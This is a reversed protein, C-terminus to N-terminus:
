MAAHAWALVKATSRLCNGPGMWSNQCVKKPLQMPGCLIRLLMASKPCSCPGMCRGVCDGQCYQEPLERPGVLLAPLINQAAAHAWVIDEAASRLYSGPSMWSHQFYRKLLHTPGYRFRLLVRWAARQAWWPTSAAIKLCIHPGMCCGQCCEEPLEM